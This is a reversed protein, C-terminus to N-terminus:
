NSHPCNNNQRIFDNIQIVKKHWKKSHTFNNGTISVMRKFHFFYYYCFHFSIYLYPSERLFVVSVGVMMMMIFDYNDLLHFEIKVQFLNTHAACEECLM